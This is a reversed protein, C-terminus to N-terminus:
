DEWEQRLLEMARRLRASITNPKEQLMKGIEKVTFGQYYRLLVVEKYEVPLTYVLNLLEVSDAGTYLGPERDATLEVTESDVFERSFPRRLYDRCINMAIATVWTKESSASRFTSYKKYARYLADQVAEQALQYDKLYLYCLRTLQTSYTDMLREIDPEQRELPTSWFLNFFM